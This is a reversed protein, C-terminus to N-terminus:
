WPTKLHTGLGAIQRQPISRRRQEGREVTGNPCVEEWGRRVPPKEDDSSLTQPVFKAIPRRGAADPQEMADLLDQLHQDHHFVRSGPDLTSVSDALESFFRVVRQDKPHLHSAMAGADPVGGKRGKLLQINPLENEPALSPPAAAAEDLESFSIADAPLSSCPRTPSLFHNDLCNTPSNSMMDNMLVGHIDDITMEAPTPAPAGSDAVMAAAETAEKKALAELVDRFLSKIQPVGQTFGLFVM